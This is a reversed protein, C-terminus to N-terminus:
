WHNVLNELLFLWDNLTIVLVVFGVTLNKIHVKFLIGLERKYYKTLSILELAYCRIKMVCTYFRCHLHLPFLISYFQQLNQFCQKRRSYIEWVINYIFVCEKKLNFFERMKYRKKSFFYTKEKMFKFFIKRLLM